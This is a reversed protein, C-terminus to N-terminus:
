SLLTKRLGSKLCGSSLGFWHPPNEQFDLSSDPWFFLVPVTRAIMKGKGIGLRVACPCVSAPGLQLLEWLFISNAWYQMLFHLLICNADGTFVLKWGPSRILFFCEFLFSSSYFLSFCCPVPPSFIHTTRVETTGKGGKPKPQPRPGMGLRWAGSHSCLSKPYYSNICNM